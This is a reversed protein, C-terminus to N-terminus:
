IQFQGYLAKFRLVAVNSMPSLWQLLEDRTPGNVADKPTFMLDPEKRRSILSRTENARILIPASVSMKISEPVLPNLLFTQERLVGRHMNSFRSFLTQDLTENYVDQLHHIISCYCNHSKDAFGFREAPCVRPLVCHFTPLILKRKLLSAIKLATHLTEWEIDRMNHLPNDYQLYKAHPDLYYKDVSSFWLGLEKMRFMKGYYDLYLHHLMVAKSMIEHTPYYYMFEDEKNIKGPVFLDFPLRRVKVDITSSEGLIRDNLEQQDWVNPHKTLYGSYDLFFKKSKETPRLYMFGANLSSNKVDFDTQVEMDCDHCNLYTFPDKFYTIDLDNVLTAYGLNLALTAMKFKTHGKRLWGSTMLGSHQSGIDRVDDTYFTLWNKAKLSEHIDRDFTIFLIRNMNAKAAAHHAYSEAMEIYGRDVFTMVVTRAKSSPVCVSAMDLVEKFRRLFELRVPWPWPVDTHSALSSFAWPSSPLTLPAQSCNVFNNYHTYGPMHPVINKTFKCQLTHKSLSLSLSLILTALLLISMCLSCSRLAEKRFGAFM